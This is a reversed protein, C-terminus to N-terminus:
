GYDVIFGDKTILAVVTYISKIEIVKVNVLRDWRGM